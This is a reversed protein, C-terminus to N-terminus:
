IFICTYLLECWYGYRSIDAEEDRQYTEQVEHIEECCNRDKETEEWFSERNKGHSVIELIM